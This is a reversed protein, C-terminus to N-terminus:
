ASLRTLRRPLRGAFGLRNMGSNMKLFVRHPLHDQASAIWDVQEDTCPTCWLYLCSYLELDRPEFVGELLLIPGRYGLARM